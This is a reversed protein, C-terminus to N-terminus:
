GRVESFLESNQKSRPFRRPGKNSSSSKSVRAWKHFLFFGLGKRLLYYASGRHIGLVSRSRILNDGITLATLGRYCSGGTRGLEEGEDHQEPYTEWVVPQVEWRFFRGM